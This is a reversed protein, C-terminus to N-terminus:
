CIGRAWERLDNIEFDMVYFKKENIVKGGDLCQVTVSYPKPGNLNPRSASIIVYKADARLHWVDWGHNGTRSRESRTPKVVQGDVTFVWTKDFGGMGTNRYPKRIQTQVNAQGTGQGVEQAM